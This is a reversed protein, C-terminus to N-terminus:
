LCVGSRHTMHHVQWASRDVKIVGDIIATFLCPLTCVCEVKNRKMKKLIYNWVEQLHKIDAHFNYKHAILNTVLIM